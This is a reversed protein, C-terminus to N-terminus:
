EILGPYTIQMGDVRAWPTLRHPKSSKESMIDEVKFGRVLLADGILSRHCRWPVSEACMIAVQKEKALEILADIGQQFADTQMYDAYGRFSKNKWATNISANTTHRLGGLAELRVYNIGEQELSAKLESENFQPNARSKPITRVDVIREVQYTKLIKIFEAIPHTSHGITYICKDMNGWQM